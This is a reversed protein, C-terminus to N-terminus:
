LGLRLIREDDITNGVKFDYSGVTEFGYHRYFAIARDNYAWVGLYLAPVKSAKAWALAREMLRHALGTGKQASAVYLRYLEIATPEAPQYPLSMPGYDIFGVLEAALYAVEIRRETETLDALTRTISFREERFFDKDEPPYIHGFTHMFSQEGFAALAAADAVQAPRIDIQESM